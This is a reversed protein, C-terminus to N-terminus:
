FSFRFLKENKFHFVFFVNTKENKLQFGVIRYCNTKENEFRIKQDMKMKRIIFDLLLYIYIFYKSFVIIFVLLIYILPFSFHPTEGGM